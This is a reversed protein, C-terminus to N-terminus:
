FRRLNEPWLVLKKTRFIREWRLHLRHNLAVEAAKIGDELQAFYFNVTNIIYEDSTQRGKEIETTWTKLSGISGNIHRVVETLLSKTGATYHEAKSKQAHQGLVELYTQCQHATETLTPQHGNNPPTAM